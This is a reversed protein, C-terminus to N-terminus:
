TYEAVEQCGEQLDLIQGKEKVSLPWAINRNGLFITNTTVWSWGGCVPSSIFGQSLNWTSLGLRVQLGV